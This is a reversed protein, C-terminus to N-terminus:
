ARLKLFPLLIGMKDMRVASRVIFRIKWKEGVPKGLKLQSNRRYDPFSTKLWDMCDRYVQEIESGSAGKSVFLLYWVIHKIVMYEFLDERLASENDIKKMNRILKSLVSTVDRDKQIRSMNAHSESEGRIAWEYGSQPIIKVKGKQCCSLYLFNFYLDESIKVKEFRIGNDDIIDKRYIRGWPATNRYMSWESDPDLDRDSRRNEDVRNDVTGGIVIQDDEGMHGVLTSVYSKPLSDDQDLFAIYAGTAAELGRNRAACIGENEQDIIRVSVGEPAKGALDQLVSLSEDESGDNILILEIPSYDQAYVSGVSDPLFAAGNYVPVIITVLEGMM